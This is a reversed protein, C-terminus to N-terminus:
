PKQIELYPYFVPNIAFRRAGNREITKREMVKLKSKEEENYLYEFRKEMVELGLFAQEFLSDVISDISASTIKCVQCANLLDTESIIGPGGAFEFLLAELDPIRSTNEAILSDFAHQSYQKQANAVDEQQVKRHGRNIASSIACKTIYILDRPRPLVAQVLFNRTPIGDISTCFYKNWLNDPTEGTSGQMRWEIVRLLLERDEWLLRTIPIKDKEPAFKIIESFIDSRLFIMLSLNVPKKGSLRKSFDNIIKQGVFLLGFLLESLLSLDSDKSWAKDLNDILVAVKHKHELLVGLQIRMDVLIKEHLLESIKLRTNGASESSDITSLSAVANELRISFEPLILKENKEAFELFKIEQESPPVTAHRSTIVEYVCKILESYILYKWFSEVLFGKEAKSMVNNLMDLIGELEYAVPMISCCLNRRDSKIDECIKLLNATKGAGKRGVFLSCNSQMAEKYAATPVFYSLLDQSEYEAIYNGIKLAQLGTTPAHLFHQTSPMLIKYYETEIKGVWDSALAECQAATEHVRLLDSFDIPPNAYPAHALMLLHHNFGHSMGAVFSVKANHIKWGLQEINQLHVIVAYANSAQEAYFALTQQHVLQPDDVISGIDTQAVIRSLKISADSEILSKLYLIKRETPSPVLIKEINQSYFTDSLNEFPKHLLFDSVIDSSNSYPQYGLTRLLEFKEFDQKTSLSNKDLIPWIKKKRAIAYGLEFLVNHNLSTLDCIFLDSNNISRCIEKIILKGQIALDKWGQIEVNKQRKIEAIATEVTEALAAPESPYAVFCKSKRM